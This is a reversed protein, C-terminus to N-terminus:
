SIPSKALYFVIKTGNFASHMEIVWIGHLYRLKNALEPVPHLHQSALPASPLANSLDPTSKQLEAVPTATFLTM